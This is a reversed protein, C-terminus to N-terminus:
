RVPHSQQAAAIQAKVEDPIDAPQEQTDATRVPEEVAQPEPNIDLIEVDFVLMENPGIGAQPVGTPGYALNGPIYFTAKGGKALMLLGEKFGPIVAGPSFVAGELNVDFVQGDTHSGTYKVKVQDTDKVKAGTGPNAIKYTLGSPTTKLSTDAAKLKAIYAQGTKTGQIAQPTNEARAQMRKEQVAEVSQRLRDYEEMYMGRTTETVTDAMVLRKIENIVTRRDMPAGQDASRHLDTAVRLGYQMGAYYEDPHEQSVVTLLGQMFAKKDYSTDAESMYFNIDHNLAAGVMRGYALSLSDALGKSVTTDNNEEVTGEGCSVAGMAGLMLAAAYLITKKM